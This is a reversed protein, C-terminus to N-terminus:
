QKNRLHPPVFKGPAPKRLPDAPSETRTTGDSSVPRSSDVSAERGGQQSKLGSLFRPPPSDSPSGDRGLGDPRTSPRWKPASDAPPENQSSASSAEPRGRVPLGGDAGRRAPPVYGTPRKPLQADKTKIDPSPM